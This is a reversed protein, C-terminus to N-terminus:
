GARSILGNIGKKDRAGFLLCVNCLRHNISQTLLKHSEVGVGPQPASISISITSFCLFTRKNPAASTSDQNVIKYEIASPPNAQIRLTPHFLDLLSLPSFDILLHMFVASSHSANV